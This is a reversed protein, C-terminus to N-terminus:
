TQNVHKNEGQFLRFLLQSLIKWLRGYWILIVHTEFKKNILYGNKELYKSWLLFDTIEEINKLVIPTIIMSLIIIVIIIQWIHPELLWKISALEFVVIWFEWFQFLSLSTKFASRKNESWMLIFYLLRLCHPNLVQNNQVGYDRTYLFM